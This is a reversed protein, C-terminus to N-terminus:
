DEDFLPRFNPSDLSAPTRIKGNFAVIIKTLLRDLERAEEPTLSSWLQQMVAGSMALGRALVEKGAPTMIIVKRRRDDPHGQREVYGAKELTKVVLGVTSRDHGMLVALGIQDVGPEHEISTLAALQTSTLMGGCQEEFLATLIQHVRRVKFTPREPTRPATAAVSAPSSENM